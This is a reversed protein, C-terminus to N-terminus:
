DVVSLEAHSYVDWSDTERNLNRYQLKRSLTYKQALLDPTLKATFSLLPVKTLVRLM